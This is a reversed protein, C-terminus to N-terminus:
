RQWTIGTWHVPHDTFSAPPLLYHPDIAELNPSFFIHDIRNRGSMDTGDSGIKGPYVSEWANTYTAAILKYADEYDRLNYDGLAIVYEKGRSRELLTQAWVLMATDSGDPHVNYLSITKGDVEIEAESTGIEDQDSYTFTTRPNLLPYRSLIATGFTGTVTSPGYYVHYGLMGAYYRVYDNNNLSIRTTDSEQLALVDPSVQRILALQQLYSPEGQNDNAAQINYTMVLLSTRAEPAAPTSGTRLLGMGSGLCLLVLLAIFAPQRFGPEDGAEAAPKSFRWALLGLGAAILGYPLWYQNRFPTSIPEIYGWVNTFINMFVLLILALGGLLMGPALLRPSPGIQRIHRSFLSGDLYIVPFSVLMVVLLFQAVWSPAGVVVAPSAPTAPFAVRHALITGVLSLVFILNWLILLPTPFGEVWRPRAVVLWAWFASLLSVAGVVLAYSGETWRAIVAPASFSFYVLTIVLFFGLTALSLGKRGGAPPSAPDWELRTLLWGLLLGLGWGVWSGSITLSYDISFNVTRLLASLCVGLALGASLGLSGPQHAEGKPRSTFLLPLLLMTAGTAAGSALMRWSTELYPTLGRGVLLVAFSVWVLWHPLKKGFPLLLVPSFFFLVGLAKADLSTHMLDLIYISQVLTGALQIFFLLLIAFAFIQFLNKRM